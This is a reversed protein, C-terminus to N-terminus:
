KRESLVKELMQPIEIHQPCHTACLGCKVCKQASEYDIDTGSIWNSGKHMSKTNWAIFIDPIEVGHPCPMCYRCGTCKVKQLEKINKEVELIATHEKDSLPQIDKFLEVNEQLQKMNSMGSLITAIGQKEALWRFSYSPNSGGLDRYPKAINDPLDALLGGKLPEMIVIPINRKVLEDYGKEGPYDDLDLYNFQIQAFDWAHEKLVDVLVDYGDHISFGLYKLKGEKKKNIAWKFADLEMMKEYTDRYLSHMLYFDIYEVQLRELSKNFIKDLDDKTKAVWFPMKDTVFFEERKLQKLAIGLAIESGGGDYVYATDFYNVGNEHAYKVMQNVQEQDIKGDKKPFRMCGLGLKSVTVNLNKLETTKM